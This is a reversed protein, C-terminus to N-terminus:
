NFVTNKRVSLEIFPWFQSAVVGFHCSHEVQVRDKALLVLQGHDANQSLLLVRM